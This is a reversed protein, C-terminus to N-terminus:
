TGVIAARLWRCAAFPTPSMRLQQGRVRRLQRGRSRSALEELIGRARKPAGSKAFTRALEFNVAFSRPVLRRARLLFSIAVDRERRSRFHQRAELLVEAADTAGRRKLEFDSLAYWLEVQRSLLVSAERLVGVVHDLFGKKALGEVARQYSSWAAEPQKTEALLPAIRRHLDDNEPEVALVECYLAIAKKRRGKKRARVAKALLRSRDYPKGRRGFFRNM